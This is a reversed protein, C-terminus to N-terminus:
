NRGRGKSTSGPTYGGAKQIQGMTANAQPNSAMASDMKAQASPHAAITGAATQVANPHNGAAKVMASSAGAALAFNTSLALGSVLLLTIFKKM